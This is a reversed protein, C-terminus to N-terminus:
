LNKCLEHGEEKSIKKANRFLRGNMLPSGDENAISYSFGRVTEHIAAVFGVAWPDNIDYDCYKSAHVYDGLKIKNM